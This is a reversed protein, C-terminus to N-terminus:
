NQERDLWYVRPLKQLPSPAAVPNGLPPVISKPVICDHTACDDVRNKAKPTGFYIQPTDSIDGRTWTSQDVGSVDDLNLVAKGTLLDLVYFRAKNSSSADCKDVPVSSATGIGFTTFIIKNEFTIANSLVKEATIGPNLLDLHWGKKNNLETVSTLPAAVLNTLTIEPDAKTPDQITFPHEDILVFFRDDNTTDLPQPREGSGISITNIYKAGHRFFAVDPENFFKRKPTSAGGLEAFHYTQADSIDGYDLDVRWVNGGTDAFYLRDDAGNRDIDMIRIDAPVAHGVQIKKHITAGDNADVIYVDAGTGSDDAETIGGSLLGNDDVYGGGFIVVPTLTSDTKKVKVKALKPKSWSFGLDSFGSTGPTIKWKLKPSGPDTVDLAYYAKGGRRLGFLLIVKDGKEVIGNHNKDDFWVTIESDVGYPHDTAVGDYQIKINKLLESPMYAFAETGDLDNIAHIYGENTGVFILGGKVRSDYNVLVPKSHIIDGMHHRTTGDDNKGKIFNILSIRKAKLVSSEDDTKSLGLQMNSVNKETLTRLAASSGNKGNDTYVVRDDPDPIMNAAGGGKVAHDPIATAWLDKADARVQGTDDMIKQGDVDLLDGANNLKFKKLNGSWVPSSERNFVPLYVINGHSLRSSSNITYTPSSFLRVKKNVGSIADKFARVLSDATSAPSFDGNGASALAKLYDTADPNNGLAFGITYLNVFQDGDVSSSNDENALFTALEVGCRGEDTGTDCNNHYGSGIMNSILTSSFNLSPSGDSLLIIANTACEEKIPSVFKADGTLETTNTTVNGCVEHQCSEVETTCQYRDADCVYRNIDEKCQQHQSTNCDEVPNVCSGFEDYIEEPCSTTCSTSSVSKCDYWTPHVSQCLYASNTICNRTASYILEESCNEGNGCSTESSSCTKRVTEPGTCSTGCTATSCYNTQTNTNCTKTANCSTGSCAEMNCQYTTTSTTIDQLLGVYTSPHAARIKSPDHRGWNTQEGRFYLAAEFLSDVLPTGGYPVWTNSIAQLYGRTTVGGTAPLYSTGPHDFLPNSDLVTDADADISAIPYSIGHATQSTTAVTSDGAYSSLGVNIDVMDPDTLLTSLANRLISMRSNAPDSPVTDSDVEWDMSVSVDMVFLINSNAAPKEANFIDIDDAFVVHQM